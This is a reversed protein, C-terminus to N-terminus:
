YVSGINEPDNATNVVLDQLIESNRSCFNIDSFVKRHFFNSENYLPKRGEFLFFLNNQTRKLSHKSVNPFIDAFCMHYIFKQPLYFSFPYQLIRDSHIVQFKSM